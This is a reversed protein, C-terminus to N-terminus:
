VRELKIPPTQGSAFQAVYLSEEGDLALDHPHMFTEGAHAMGALVGSGDYQPPSGGVNSVVRLGADLVSVFGRANRDKPWNDGLHAVFSHGGRSRIQRPNGGPLEVKQLIKGQQSLRLLCQQDSMAILLTPEGQSTTEIM